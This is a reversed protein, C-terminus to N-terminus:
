LTEYVTTVKTVPHVEQISGDWYTDDGRVYCGHKKFFQTGVKIIAYIREGGGWSPLRGDVYVAYEEVDEIDLLLPAEETWSEVDEWNASKDFLDSRRGVANEVQIATYSTM